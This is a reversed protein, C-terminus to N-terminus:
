AQGKQTALPMRGRAHHVLLLAAVLGAVEVVQTVLGVSDLEEHEANLLPLGTTRSAAYGAILAGFLLAALVPPRGDSPRRAVLVATMALGAAALVFAVGLPPAERLHEPVLGAHVGASIACAVIVVNRHADLRGAV